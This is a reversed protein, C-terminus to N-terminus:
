MYMADGHLRRVQGAQNAHAAELVERVCRAREDRCAVAVENSRGGGGEEEGSGGEADAVPLDARSLAGLQLSSEIERAKAIAVTLLPTPLGALRAVNLGFSGSIGPVLTYLFTVAAQHDSGPVEEEEGGAEASTPSGEEENELLYSMHYNRVLGVM